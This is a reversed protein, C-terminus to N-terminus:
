RLSYFIEGCKIKRPLIHFFLFNWANQRLNSSFRSFFILTIPNQVIYVKRCKHRLEAVDCHLGNKARIECIWIGFAAVKRTKKIIFMDRIVEFINKLCKAEIKVRYSLVESSKWNRFILLFYFNKRKLNCQVSRM